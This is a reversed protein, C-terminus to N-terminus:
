EANNENFPEVVLLHILLVLDEQLDSALLWSLLEALYGFLIFALLSFSIGM